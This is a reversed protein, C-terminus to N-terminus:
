FAALRLQESTMLETGYAQWRDQREDHDQAGTESEPFLRHELGYRILAAVSDLHMKQLIRTKHTSVTKVSLHLARSIETMRKGAVILGFIEFERDSLLEHRPTDDRGTLSLAVMEAMQRSLYCGGAAVKRVAHVLEEAAADKSLYGQAGARLARMAYQEETHMSLVLLLTHPCEQRLRRILQMGSLGPMSLDLVVVRPSQERAIALARHGDDTEAVVKLDAQRQLIQRVGERM